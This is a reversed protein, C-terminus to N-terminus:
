NEKASAIPVDIPDGSISYVDPYEHLIFIGFLFVFVVHVMFNAGRCIKRVIVYTVAPMMVCFVTFLSEWETTDDTPTEGGFIFQPKSVLVVGIMYPSFPEGLAISALIATFAPGLLFVVYFYIAIYICPQGYQSVYLM